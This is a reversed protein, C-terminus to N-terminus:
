DYIGCGVQRGGNPFLLYRDLGLKLCKLMAENAVGKIVLKGKWMDRIPKIKEKM